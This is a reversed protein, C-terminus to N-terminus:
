LKVRKWFLDNYNSDIISKESKSLAKLGCCCCFREGASGDAADHDDHYYKGGGSSTLWQFPGTIFIEYENLCSKFRLPNINLFKVSQLFM